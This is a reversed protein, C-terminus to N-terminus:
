WLFAQTQINSVEMVESAVFSTFLPKHMKRKALSLEKLFAAREDRYFEM